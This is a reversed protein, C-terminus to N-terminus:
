NFKEDVFQRLETFQALMADVEANAHAMANIETRLKGMNTALAYYM